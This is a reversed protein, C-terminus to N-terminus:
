NLLGKTRSHRLLFSGHQVLMQVTAGVAAVVCAFRQRPDPVAGAVTNPIDHFKLDLFVGTGRDSIEKVINIAEMGAATHLEKGVKVMGVYPAMEAILALADRTNATDIALCVRSRAVKELDSLKIKDM